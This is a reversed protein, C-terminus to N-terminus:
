GGGSRLRDVVYSLRTLLGKVTQALRMARPGGSIVLLYVYFSLDYPYRRIASVFHSRANGYEGDLRAAKGLRVELSARVRDEIGHESAPDRLRTEYMTSAIDRKVAYGPSIRDEHDVYRCVLPEPVAVFETHQALRVFYEWDQWAPFQEDLLGVTESLERRMLMGSFSGIYNGHLIPESVDGDTRPLHVDITNGESDLQRNGAFAVGAAEGAEQLAEVQKTLKHPTWRDDDDLFAIYEGRAERIGTNRAAAGGQNKEHRRIVFRELDGAELDGIAERAPDASGDDVVILEVPTYAQGIVSVVARRLMEPRDKTPIVVSVLGSDEMSEVTSVVTV